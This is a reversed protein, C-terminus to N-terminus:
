AELAACQRFTIQDIRWITTSGGFVKRVGRTKDWMVPMVTNTGDWKWFNTGDIMVRLDFTDNQHDELFAVFQEFRATTTFWIGKVKVVRKRTDLTWGTHGDSPYDLFGTSPDDLDLEPQSECKIYFEQPTGSNDRLYIWGGWDFATTM